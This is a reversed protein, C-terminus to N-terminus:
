AVATLGKEELFDVVGAFSGCENLWTRDPKTFQSELMFALHRHLLAFPLAYSTSLHLFQEIAESPTHAYGAFMAPNALLGRAAMVGQVGTEKRIMQVDESTWADGNAVCPVRGKACEVAFRISSLDVPHSSAQHRTRGHITIHSAGAHIATEVLQQTRQLDPDVRIKVSIPFSWGTRDRASRILDRVQDPQRLLYCGIKEQYAWKQPCGANLDVGDVHGYILECADAFVKGDNAAFQAIVAGRVRRTRPEGTENNGTGDFSSRREVLDFSGREYISTSFDARRSIANRSFEQALIM